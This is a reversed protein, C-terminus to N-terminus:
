GLNLRIDALEELHGRVYSELVKQMASPEVALESAMLAAVRAPWNVWADREQRGLRFVLAEARARDVLDGKMEQLKMQLHQSKLVENKAKAQFYVATGPPAQERPSDDVTAAEKRPPTFRGLQQKSPDTLAARRADSAAPDISGDAYLVLRGAVKAKRVASRSLGAREAYDRESLGQM